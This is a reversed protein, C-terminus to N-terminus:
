PPEQLFTKMEVKKMQMKEHQKSRQSYFATSLKLIKMSMNINEESGTMPSSLGCYVTLHYANKNVYM